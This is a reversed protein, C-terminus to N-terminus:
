DTNKGYTTNPVVLYMHCKERIDYHHISQNHTFYSRFVPPLKNPHHVFKHLLLLIQYSDLLPLPLTEYFKYLDTTHTRKPRKQVIRLIKNNLIKLKSLYAHYTNGYIEIGYLLHSYVFAFYLTKLLENNIKTHIKYFFISTSRIKAEIETEAGFTTFKHSEALIRSRGFALKFKRRPKQIWGTKRGFGLTSGVAAFHSSLQPHATHVPWLLADTSETRGCSCSCWRTFRASASLSWNGYSSLKTRFYWDTLM